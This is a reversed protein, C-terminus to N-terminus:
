TRFAYKASRYSEPYSAQLNEFGRRAIRSMRPTCKTSSDQIWFPPITVRRVLPPFASHCYCQTTFLEVELNEQPTRYTAESLLQIGDFAFIIVCFGHIIKYKRKM